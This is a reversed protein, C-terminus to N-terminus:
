LFILQHTCLGNYWCLSVHLHHNQDSCSQLQESNSPSFNKCLSKYITLLIDVYHAKLFMFNELPVSFVYAVQLLGSRANASGYCVPELVGGYTGEFCMVVWALINQLM